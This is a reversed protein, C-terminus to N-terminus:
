AAAADLDLASSRILLQTYPDQPHALLEGTPGAEILRGARMVGIRSCLSAVAGLDHSIFLLAMGRRRHLGRLLELIQAGVSVDLAAVPEDCILVQPEVALARAIGVRQREGGSLEHPLRRLYAPPLKVQALLEEVRRRRASRGQALRHIILPEGVLDEVCMRPNLSNSSDQFILQAVRCAGLREGRRLGQMDYGGVQVVGRTPLLLGVLIRAFTSKGSGSEGVLGVAEGPEIRWSMGEVATVRGVERRWFGGRVPFIKTIDATVVLPEPM